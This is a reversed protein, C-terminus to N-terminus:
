RVPMSKLIRCAEEQGRDCSTQLLGRAKPVDLREPPAALLLAWGICADDVKEGCLRELTALGTAGGRAVALGQHQLVAYRACSPLDQAVRCGTDYAAAAKAKDVPVGFGGDYLSGLSRCAQGEKQDCAASLLPLAEACAANDRQAFCRGIAAASTGLRVPAPSAGRTEVGPSVGGTSNTQGNASGATSRAQLRASQERAFDLFRQAYGREQDTQSVALATKAAAVGDNHRGANWLARALSMRHHMSAPETQMAKEALVVAEAFAGLNVKVDALFSLANAFGPEIEIARELLAATRENIAREPPAGGGAPQLLRALRYHIHARSSGSQVAKELAASAEERRGERDLLLGVVEFPAPHKPDAKGVEAAFARAEVPRGMAMLLNARLAASDAEAVGRSPFGESKLDLAVPIKAYQFIAKRLYDRMGDYFPRMDPGFAEKIAVDPPTGTLLLRNFSNVRASHEGRNGFMLYHVFVWSQSEFLAADVESTLYRSGPSASLFDNLPIAVAQRMRDLHNQMLRGVHLEKERVITNSLVEAVGRSYWEPVGRPMSRHFVLSAYNWYASQYPNEGVDSPEPIDTRLAIFQRDEGTAWFSAPRYRKGEWYQPGLTKLTAEDKVAFITIPRGGDIKAWPWVVLLAQRIQEFQWATRRGEKEGSNTVVTFHPSSIEVWRAPAADAAVGGVVALVMAAAVKGMDAGM